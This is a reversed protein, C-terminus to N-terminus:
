IIHEKKVFKWRGIPLVGLNLKGIRTRKLSVMHYGLRGFMKRIQRNKGEKLIVTIITVRGKNFEKIIQIGQLSEGEITMGKQLINKADKSLISDIIVEYEKEHEYRPHTLRNTLEGDNTLLILGESDKDLRGVPYLRVSQILKKSADDIPKFHNQPIILDLVSAGQEDTTSTIYDVPKNLALYVFNKIKSDKLRKIKEGNVIIEDYEPDVKTGLKAVVIENVKVKGAVILEEAKRRSCIGLDAIHKQLRVLAM